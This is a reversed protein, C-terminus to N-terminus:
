RIVVLKNTLRTAGSELAYFYIGPRLGSIDLAISNRGQAYAADSVISLQRGLTDFLLLRVSAAAPLTFRILATAHTGRLIPNPSVELLQLSAPIAANDGSSSVGSAFRYIAGDFSCILLEGQADVGFAAINKGSNLLLENSFDVPGNYTLGWIRGTVFDAYIYKGTLEPVRNGRYVHGGTISAGDSRGYELVPKTLGTEDCGTQPNYCAFGEMVRWGYNKGKEIINVEEFRSQGVDGAWLRGFAPDFSFRWPNRLGWAYIEEAFGETNGVFPNDFPIGYNKGDQPNDVDIRLMKGLLVSRNQANNQPDGGSGGDGTGIYLSGDPGFAIQGGNHNTYPQPFTLIVLESSPDAKMPDTASVMYRAIVTRDPNSATYNVFFLGNTEFSPHFALGLLGQENGGDNVRDRIDLFVEASPSAADNMFVRILGEQEVIFLRGSGDGPQQLDVPRNLSLQPFANEIHLQAHLPLVPILSLLLLLRFRIRM